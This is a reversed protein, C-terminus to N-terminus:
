DNVEGEQRRQRSRLRKTQGAVQKKKLKEYDIDVRQRGLLGAPSSYFYSCTLLTGLVFKKSSHENCYLQSMGMM